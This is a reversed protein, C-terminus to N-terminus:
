KTARTRLVNLAVWPGASSAVVRYKRNDVLYVQWTGKESFSHLNEWEGSEYASEIDVDVTLSNTWSSSGPMNAEFVHLGEGIIEDNLTETPLLVLAM